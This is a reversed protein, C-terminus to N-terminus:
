GARYRQVFTEYQEPTDIGQSNSPAIAVAIQYGHELVRLQELRETNELPTPSMALYKPLFDRRYVYLGVHKLVTAIGDGDRDHPILARSFYLARSRHDLVVKVINPSTPDDDPNMPSAVTSMPAEGDDIIKQVALDILTPDMEPEDGQVNVLIDADLSDAAEAIRSTGNPHDPSTMVVDGGFSRVATAIREDDTAIVVRSILKAQIAREYVHQVLPKGTRDALMKAPFRVSAFRAPIVAIANM